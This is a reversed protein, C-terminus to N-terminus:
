FFILSEIFRSPGIKSSHDPDGNQLTGHDKMREERGENEDKRQDRGEAMNQQQLRHERGLFRGLLRWRL